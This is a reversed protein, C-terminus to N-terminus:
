GVNSASVGSRRASQSTEGTGDINRTGDSSAIAVVVGDNLLVELQWRADGLRPIVTPAIISRLKTRQFTIPKTLRKVKIQRRVRRKTDLDEDVIVGLRPEVATKGRFTIAYKL